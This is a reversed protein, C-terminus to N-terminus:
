ARGAKVIVAQALLHQVAHVELLILREITFAPSVPLDVLVDGATRMQRMAQGLLKAVYTVARDGAVQHFPSLSEMPRIRLAEIAGADDVVIDLTCHLPAGIARSITRGGAGAQM